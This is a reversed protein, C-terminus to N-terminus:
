QRVVFSAPELVVQEDPNYYDYLVSQATRAKM